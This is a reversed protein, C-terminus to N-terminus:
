RESRNDKIGNRNQMRSCLIYQRPSILLDTPSSSSSTSSSSSPSSSAASSTTSVDDFRISDEGEAISERKPPPAPPILRVIIWLDRIPISPDRASPPPLSPIALRLERSRFSIRAPDQQQQLTQPLSTRVCIDSGEGRGGREKDHGRPPVDRWGWM